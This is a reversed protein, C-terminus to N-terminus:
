VYRKLERKIITAVREVDANELSFSSPLCLGSKYIYDATGNLFSDAHSFVPQRHMPKWIPRSEINERELAERVRNPADPYKNVDFFVVSLWANSQGRPPDQLVEVGEFDAMIETYWSRILRRKAVFEPLRVLQARGLAALINSLRYNYGIEAHQYWPVPDKSQSAWYRVRRASEECDTLFVGGGSTSLIKNWNFSIVSSIGFAGIPKSEFRSGLGEASDCIIPVEYLESLENLEKYCGPTGYVDVSVIAKPLKGLRTKQKLYSEVLEVDLTAFKPEVDVFVPKAGLYDLPFVTAAFTLTPVLVEDDRGIGLDKYALHLAASGNALSVAFKRDLISAIENEFVANSDERGAKGAQSLCEVVAEIDNEDFSPSSLEIREPKSSIM